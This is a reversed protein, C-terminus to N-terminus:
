HWCASMRAQGTWPPEFEPRFTIVLLVRLDRVRAITLDLLERSTPDIWHADEFVMLVPRARSLAELQRVLAELTKEKKRQPTLGATADGDPFPLSLLEGILATEEGGTASQALLARLKELRTSSPDERAFGAVRELQAIVPYLASNEYHSTCFYRLRLSPEDSLRDALVAAIRSKGIGAEGAVLVM